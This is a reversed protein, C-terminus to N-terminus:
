QAGLVDKYQSYFSMLEAMLAAAEDSGVPDLPNSTDASWNRVADSNAAVMLAESLRAQIDAPMGPPGGVIRRLNFQAFQPYGAETSSPVGDVSATDEFTLIIRMDGSEVYRLLSAIPKLTADVEGRMVAVIAGSSGQYGTVNLIPCDILHMAVRATVSSTSNPGTDSLKAPRGLSCLDELSGIPSDAKVGIAYRSTALNGIWTVQELDYDIDRGLLQPVTLGPVNLIGITYGDPDSRYVSAAGKTGGAGPANEPVVEAGLIREMEPAVARVYADFGGGASYPIVFRIPEDNPWDAQAPGAGFAVLGALVRCWYRKRMTM